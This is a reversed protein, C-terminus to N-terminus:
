RSRPRPPRQRDDVDLSVTSRVRCATTRSAATSIDQHAQPRGQPTRPGSAVRPKAPDSASSALLGMKFEDPNVVAVAAIFPRDDGVVMCQSFLRDSTIASELDAPPVKEGTSTM